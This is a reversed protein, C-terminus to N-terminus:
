LISSMRFTILWIADASCLQFAPLIRNSSMNQFSIDLYFLLKALLTVETNMEAGFTVDRCGILIVGLPIM